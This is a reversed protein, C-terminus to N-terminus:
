SLGPVKVVASHEWIGCGSAEQAEPVGDQVGARLVRIWHRAVRGTFLEERIDLSSM